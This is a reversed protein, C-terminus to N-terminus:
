LSCKYYLKKGPVGHFIQGRFNVFHQSANTSCSVSHVHGQQYRYGTNANRKWIEMFATYWPLITNKILKCFGRFDVKFSYVNAKGNNSRPDTYHYKSTLTKATNENNSYIDRFIRTLIKVPIIFASKRTYFSERPSHVLYLLDM